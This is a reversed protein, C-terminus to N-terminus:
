PTLTLFVPNTIWFLGNPAAADLIYAQLVVTLPTAIPPVLYGLTRQGSPPLFGALTPSPAFVPIGDELALFTPQIGLSTHAFGYPTIPLAGSPFAPPGLPLDAAFLLPAISLPRGTITVIVPTGQMATTPATLTGPAVPPAGAVIRHLTGASVLLLGGAGDDNIAFDGPPPLGSATALVFTGGPGFYQVSGTAVGMAVDLDVISALWGGGFPNKVLGRITVQSSATQPVYTFVTYPTQGPEVRTVTALGPLASAVLASGGDGWVLHGNDAVGPHWPIEPASGPPNPIQYIAPPGFM